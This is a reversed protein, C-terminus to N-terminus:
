SVKTFCLTANHGGFGLSNSLVAKIEMERLQNPVYDLDCDPDPTTYNITPPAIEDRIALACIIAEVAGTAGLMHGTMSKSSSIAVDHAKDGFVRKIAKTEIKDNYPTSTGHANIYDIDEPQLGADEMALAMSRASQEASEDPATIHHADGTRGYGAVSCYVKARRAEAHERSELVLIGAGESMVFGDRDKDFPRSAGEPDDNRRSTARLAAFGAVGLMEVSAESGGVVMVEAEGHQIMRAAEGVSHAGSACASTICFNPGKFGYKISIYGALINTIMQPILQPSVRRPGGELARKHQTQLYQMGGIGSSVIVGAREVDFTGEILGADNIAMSAAAMGYVTFADMTRAEKASVFRKVDLDRVEGAITVPYQDINEMNQVRAIGSRGGQIGEWFRDLESAVPSVVGLGTMVVERGRVFYDGGGEAALVALFSASVARGAM